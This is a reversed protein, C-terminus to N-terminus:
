VGSLLRVFLGLSLFTRRYQPEINLGPTRRHASILAEGTVAVLQSTYRPIILETTHMYADAPDFGWFLSSLQRSGMSPLAVSSSVKCMQVKM